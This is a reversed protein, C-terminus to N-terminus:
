LCFIGPAEKKMRPTRVRIILAVKLDINKHNVVKYEQVQCKKDNSNYSGTMKLLAIKYILMQTEKGSM